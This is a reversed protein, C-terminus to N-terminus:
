VSLFIFLYIFVYVVITENTSLVALVRREPHHKSGLPNRLPVSFFLEAESSGFEAKLTGPIADVLHGLYWRTPRTPCM